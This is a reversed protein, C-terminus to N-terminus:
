KCQLYANVMIAGMSDYSKQMTLVKQKPYYTYLVHHGGAVSELFQPNAGSIYILEEENGRSQVYVKEGRMVLDITMSGKTYGGGTERGIDYLESKANSCSAIIEDAGYMLSSLVM